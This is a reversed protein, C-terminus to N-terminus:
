KQTRDTEAATTPHEATYSEITSNIWQYLSSNDPLRLYVSPSFERNDGEGRGMDMYLWRDGVGKPDWTSLVLTDWVINDSEDFSVRLCWKTDSEDPIRGYEDTIQSVEENYTYSTISEGETEHRNALARFEEVAEKPAADGYPEHPNQRGFSTKWPDNHNSESPYLRIERITWDDLVSVTNEPSQYVSNYSRAELTFYGYAGIGVIFYKNEEGDISRFSYVQNSSQAVYGRGFIESANLYTLHSDRCTYEWFDSTIPARCKTMLTLLIIIPLLKCIHITKM